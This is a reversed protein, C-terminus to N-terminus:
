RHYTPGRSKRSTAQGPKREEEEEDGGEVVEPKPNSKTHMRDASAHGSKRKRENSGAGNRTQKKYICVDAKM